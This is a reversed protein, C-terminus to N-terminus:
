LIHEKDFTQFKLEGDVFIEYTLPERKIHIVCDSGFQKVVNGIYNYMCTDIWTKLPISEGGNLEAVADYIVVEGNLERLYLYIDDITKYKTDQRVTWAIYWLEECIEKEDIEAM